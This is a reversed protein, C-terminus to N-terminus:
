ENPRERLPSASRPHLRTAVNVGQNGADPHNTHLWQFTAKLRYGVENAVTQESRMVAAPDIALNAEAFARALAGRIRKVYEKMGTRSFKRTLRAHRQAKAGHNQCFADTAIGAAVQSASQPLRTHRALYDFLIRLALPLPVLIEASRFVLYVAVIEEGPGCDCGPTRFRHVIRFIPGSSRMERLEALLLELKDVVPDDNLFM